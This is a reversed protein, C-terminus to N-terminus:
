KRNKGIVICVTVAVIIVAVIAVVVIILVLNNDEPSDDYKNEEKFMDLEEFDDDIPEDYEPEDYEPEDYEPEDYEPEDYKPEDYEPEDYEPEDYEPEDYNPDDYEPTQTPQNDSPAPQVVEKRSPNVLASPTSPRAPLTIDASSGNSIIFSYNGFYSYDKVKNAHLYYTGTTLSIKETFRITLQNSAPKLHKEAWVQNGSADYIYLNLLGIYGSVNLYVERSDPVVFRYYDDGDGFAIQGNYQKNLSISNAYDIFNDNGGYVDKFSEKSDTFNLKFSYNGFYSYDPTKKVRLCYKGSALYIYESFNISVTNSAPKIHKERWVEAGSGLDYIYFDVLGIDGIVQLVITGSSSLEFKYYDDSDGIAIQGNYQKNFTISNAYEMTNDTGGYVDKFSEASDIFTLKVSYNGQSSYNNPKGVYFYYTGSALEINKSYRIQSQNSGASLQSEKWIEAGNSSFIKLNVINVSGSFNITLKGSSPLTLKYYDQTNNQAITRSFSHGLSIATATDISSGAAEVSFLLGSVLLVCVSLFCILKKM